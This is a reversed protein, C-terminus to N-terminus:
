WRVVVDVIQDASLGSIEVRNVDKGNGAANRYGWSAGTERFGQDNYAVAAAPVKGTGHVIKIKGSSDATIPSGIASSVRELRTGGPVTVTIENGSVSASPASAGVYDMDVGNDTETAISSSSGIWSKLLELTTEQLVGIAGFIAIKNAKNTEIAATDGLTSKNIDADAWQAGETVPQKAM